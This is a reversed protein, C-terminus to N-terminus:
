AQPLAHQSRRPDLGRQLTDGLLNCALMLLLLAVGPVIV